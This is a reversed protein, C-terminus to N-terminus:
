SKRRRNQKRAAKVKDRNKAPKKKKTRFKEGQPMDPAPMMGMASVAGLMATIQVDRKRDSLKFGASIKLEDMPDTHM